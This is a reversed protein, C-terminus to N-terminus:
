PVVLRHTELVNNYYLQVIYHGSPYDSVSIAKGTNYKGSYFLKGDLARIRIYAERFNNNMLRFADRTPNPFLLTTATEEPSELIPVVVSLNTSQLFEFAGIDHTSGSPRTTADADFIIGWPTHDTGADVVASLVSSPRYDHNAVDTLGLTDIDRSLLNTTINIAMSDRTSRDNFDIYSEQNQKWTNGGEFDYGPDIILNNSFYNPVEDQKRYKDAPDIPYIIKANYHIGAREPTIITNNAIYYGENPDDFDHRQHLFIGHKKPKVFVNNFIKTGSEGSILQMGWGKELNNNEIYNNYIDYTGGGVSMAFSQGWRGDTGYDKVTNDRIIGNSRVLNLQIADWDIAEFINDYVEVDELWHGYIYDGSCSRTSNLKYGGTFGIYIGEGGTDHVYNNHIKLNKMVFGNRRWTEPRSCQPDTKAMIGAFGAHSVEVHDVEIDTSLNQLNVGVSGGGTDIVDFGYEHGADGTGTLHIHKSRQFDIGSYHSEDIIVQGGCNKVVVPAAATGEFDYFRIGRYTGAPVCITDGPVYTTQSAWVINLSTTSLGTLTVDCNCNQANVFIITCLVMTLCLLLKKM